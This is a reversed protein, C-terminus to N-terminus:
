ENDTLYNVLNKMTLKPEGNKSNDCAFGKLQEGWAGLKDTLAEFDYVGNQYISFGADKISQKIVHANVSAAVFGLKHDGPAHQAELLTYLWITLDNIEFGLHNFSADELSENTLPSFKAKLAHPLAAVLREAIDCGSPLKAALESKINRSAIHMAIGKRKPVESMFGCIRTDIPMSGEFHDSGKLCFFARWDIQDDRTMQRPERHGMFLDDLDRSPMPDDKTLRLSYSNRITSHGFRFTAFRFVDRWLKDNGNIFDSDDKIVTQYIDPDLLQKLYDEVVMLQFTLVVLRQAELADKAFHDKLLGNHFRQWFLHFQAIIVHDDNRQEPIVAVGQANRQFDLANGSSFKFAGKQDFLLDNPTIHQYEFNQRRGYLSQLDMTGTVQRSARLKDTIPTIDHSIFQGIYTYGSDLAKSFRMFEPDMRDGIAMATAKQLELDNELRKSM